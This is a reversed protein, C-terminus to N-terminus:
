YYQFLFPIGTDNIAAGFSDRTIPDFFFHYINISTLPKVHPCQIIPM